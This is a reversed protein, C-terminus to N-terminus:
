PTCTVVIDTVNAGSITGTGSSVSCTQGPPQTAVTVLYVSGDAQPPFLFGTNSTIVIDNLGNNQLVLPGMSTLGEVVGGVQYQDDDCEGAPAPPSPNLVRCSNEGSFHVEVSPEGSATAFTCTGSLGGDPSDLSVFVDAFSEGNANTVTPGEYINISGGEVQECSGQIPAGEIPNGSGDYLTLTITIGGRGIFSSPNANLVGNEPAIVDMCSQNDSDELNCTIGGSSFNFGPEASGPIVGTTTAVGYTCGNEGTPSNMIGATSIGDIYGQGNSGVYSFSVYRGPLPNRASDALCVNFAVSTNAPIVNPSVVLTSSQGNFGEVGPFTILEVDTVTKVVGNVPNIRGQGKVSIAAIRGLQSVPYNLRTTAVGMENMVATANINGDVARGVAYPLIGFDNNIAGTEDNRNFKEVTSLSTQSNVSAVTLSSELDENGLSEEGFVMLIDNPQVGGAATIFAATQSTFTTGGEQPDGDGSSHVFTGYGNDPYGTIPSNIMSFEVTQPLAPNGAKDTGIASLVLTYTGDQFDYILDGGEDTFDGNVTLVDLASHTLELAWLVGDSVIYTTVDSIPDQLGNDVNNDARDTTATLHITNSDSGSHILASVIGNLSAVNISTGQVQAGSANTSSLKEGSNPADTIISLKVNNVQPDDVPLNGSSVNVSVDQTTNGGSGNVYLAGGNLMDINTPLYPNSSQNVVNITFSTTHELGSGAEIANITVTAAGPIDRAWLFLNGHGANMNVNGQGLLVFFENVDETEPDDLTTFALSGVPNVSVNVSSPDGEPNTFNGFVDKFQIDVEMVFPTGNYYDFNQSNVPLDGRPAVVSLQDFPEPGDIITYALDASYPQNSTTASATLTVTGTTNGSAIYFTAIGGTTTASQSEGGVTDGVTGGSLDSALAITAVAVNSTRLNVSTGDPAVGGSSFNVRVNIQTIFPSGIFAPYALTNAPLNSDVPVLTISFGNPTSSGPTPGASGDGGGGCSTLTMVVALLLFTFISKKMKIMGTLNKYLM